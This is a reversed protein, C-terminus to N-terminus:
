FTKMKLSSYCENSRMGGGFGLFDFKLFRSFNFGHGCGSQPLISFNQVHGRKSHSIM